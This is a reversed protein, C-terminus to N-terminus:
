PEFGKEQLCRRLIPLARAVRVRLAGERVGIRSSIERYSLGQRHRMVVVERMALPLVQLCDGIARAIADSEVHSEIEASADVVETSGADGIAFVSSWRRRTKIADLCRHRAISLLWARFSGDRRFHILAQYAQVFTLQAIDDAQISDGLLDACFCRIAGGYSEMLLALATRRDGRELANEIQQEFSAREDLVAVELKGAMVCGWVVSASRVPVNM